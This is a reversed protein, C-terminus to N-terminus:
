EMEAGERVCCVHVCAEPIYIVRMNLDERIPHRVWCPVHLGETTRRRETSEARQITEVTEEGTAEQREAAAEAWFRAPTPTHSNRRSPSQLAADTDCFLPDEREGAKAKTKERRRKRRRRKWNTSNNHAATPPPPICSKQPSTTLFVLPGDIKRTPNHNLRSPHKRM